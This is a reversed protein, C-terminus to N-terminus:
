SFFIDRFAKEITEFDNSKYLSSSQILFKLAPGSLKGKLFAITKEPKLKNLTSYSRIQDFFFDLLSSDGQFNLLNFNLLQKSNSM